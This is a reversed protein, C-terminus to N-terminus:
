FKQEDFFSLSVVFLTDDKTPTQDDLFIHNKSWLHKIEGRLLFGSGLITDLGISAGYAKFEEDTVSSAIIGDPDFYSEFRGNISVRDSLAQKAMVSYGWWSGSSMMGESQHGVDISGVLTFDSDIKQTAIFNHFLRTGLNEKGIFTNSSLNTDGSVFSVQTGLAPHRPDTTNQWGNVGLLQASWSDNFKHALKVGTEYYPSFEAIYSRTYSLNDKSLWSEAGIHALFTGIDITTADNIYAGLYSEQVFKFSDEPEANYNIDVSDGYQATLKGRISGDDYGLGASALNLHYDDNRSSQTFYAREDNLLKNNSYASYTDVFLSTTFNDDAKSISTIIGLASISFAINFLKM